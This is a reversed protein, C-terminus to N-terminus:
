LALSEWHITKRYIKWPPALTNVMQSAITSQWNGKGLIRHPALVLTKQWKGDEHVSKWLSISVRQPSPPIECPALAIPRWVVTALSMFGLITSNCAAWEVQSCTTPSMPSKCTTASIQTFHSRAATRAAPKEHWGKLLKPSWRPPASGLAEVNGLTRGATYRRCTFTMMNSHTTGALDSRQTLWISSFNMARVPNVISTTVRSRWFAQGQRRQQDHHSRIWQNNHNPLDGHFCWKNLGLMNEMLIWGSCDM